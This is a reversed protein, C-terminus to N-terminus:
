QKGQTMVFVAGHAAGVSQTNHGRLTAMVGHHLQQLLVDLPHDHGSQDDGEQLYSGNWGSARKGLLIKNRTLM